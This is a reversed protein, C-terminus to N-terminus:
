EKNEPAKNVAGTKQSRKVVIERTVNALADVCQPCDRLHSFEDDLLNSGSMAVEYFRYEPIHM